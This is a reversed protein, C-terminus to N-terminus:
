AKKKVTKKKTFRAHTTHATTPKRRMSVGVIDLRDLPQSWLQKVRPRYLLNPWAAVRL